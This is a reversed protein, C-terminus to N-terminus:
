EGKGRVALGRLYEFIDSNVRESNFFNSYCEYANASMKLVESRNANLEVIINRLMDANYPDYSAGCRCGRLLEYLEGRCPSSIIPLGSSLYEVAKNNISALFDYRDPLPDLGANSRRMLSYIHAADVWGPFYINKAGAAISRYHELREGKGCLVIRAPILGDLKQFAKIPASLDFQSSIAGFFCVTFWKDDNTIGFDDWYKDACSLLESSPPLPSYAFPFSRDNANKERAARNVGWAVFSETIGILATARAFVSKAKSYLPSLLVKGLPRILRHLHNEFIDPWMDRLDLVVPVGHEEGYCVAASAIEVPPVSCLIIDPRNKAALMQRYIRKALVSQDIFRGLSINTRYGISKVLRLSLNGTVSIASDEGVIHQKSFHDFSSTWWTVTARSGVWTAFQGTRHLRQGKFYEIPLPEGITLLWIEM